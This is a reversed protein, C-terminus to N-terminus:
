RNGVYVIPVEFTLLEPHDTKGTFLMKRDTRAEFGAPFTLTVTFQKGGPTANTAGGRHNLVVVYKKEAATLKTTTLMIETPAVQVAPLVTAVAQVALDPMKPNSSKITIRATHTGNTLPPVTTITLEFERGPVIEKLAPRFEPKDSRLDTLEVSGEVQNRITVSRSVVQDLQTLAPFIVVPNSIQIPTWISANIELVATPRTPDNSAITITKTVPGTFQATELQIPITGSGGAEIRRTWEGATTCGCSPRVDSIELPADGANLVKFDYRVPEGKSVSGFDHTSVPFQIRPGPRPAPARDAKQADAKSVSEGAPAQASAFAIICFSFAF